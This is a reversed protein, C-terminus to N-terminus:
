INSLINELHSIIVKILSGIMSYFPRNIIKINKNINYKDYEENLDIINNKINEILNFNANNFSNLFLFLKIISILEM